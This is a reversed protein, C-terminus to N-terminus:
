PWKRRDSRGDPTIDGLRVVSNANLRDVFASFRSRKIKGMPLALVRIRAPAVPSFRDVVMAVNPHADLM